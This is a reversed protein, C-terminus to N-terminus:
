DKTEKVMKETKHVMTGKQGRGTSTMGGILTVLYFLCGIVALIALLRLMSKRRFLILFGVAIIFLVVPLTRTQFLTVGQHLLGELDM